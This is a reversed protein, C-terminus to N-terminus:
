ARIHSTRRRSRGGVMQDLTTLGEPDGQAADEAGTPELPAGDAGAEMGNDHGVGILPEGDAETWEETDPTYLASEAWRGELLQAIRDLLKRTTERHLRPTVLPCVARPKLRFSCRRARNPLGM